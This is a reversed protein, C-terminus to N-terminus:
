SVFALTTPNKIRQNIQRFEWRLFFASLLFAIGDSIPAALPLYSLSFLWPLVILLPLLLIIQRTLSFYIGLKARNTSSYYSGILIQIGNIPTLFLFIRFFNIAYIVYEEENGFLLVVQKTLLEFVLFFFTGIMITGIM